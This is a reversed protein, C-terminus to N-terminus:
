NVNESRIEHYELLWKSQKCRDFSKERLKLQTNTRKLSIVHIVFKIINDANDKM